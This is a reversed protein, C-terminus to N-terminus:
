YLKRRSAGGVPVTDTLAKIREIIRDAKVDDSSNSTSALRRQLMEISCNSTFVTKKGHEMRYDLVTFLVDDRIFNTMNEAGIDDLVLLYATRLKRLTNDLYDETNYNNRLDTCLRPFNVFAVKKGKKALANTLCSALYSKGTGLPGFFYLGKDQDQYEDLWMKAWRYVEKYEKTENSLDINDLDNTLSNESLDCLLYNNKHAILSDAKKKFRCPVLEEYLNEDLYCGYGKDPNKCMDLSKCVERCYATKECYNALAILNREIDRETLNYRVIMEKAYPNNKVKQLLEEKFLGSTRPLNLKEM